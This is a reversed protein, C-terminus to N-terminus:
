SAWPMAAPPAFRSSVNVPQGSQASATIACMVEVVHAAQEASARHPRGEQIAEAMEAVGAAWQIPGAPQRVLPVAEYEADFAAHEIRGEFQFWNSLWLSGADGHLEVGRQRSLSSAYFDSTLRVLPGDVLELMAVTFDPRGIGFAVGDRTVREALLRTAWGSVRAVPGFLATLLTLPYVGVDFLPGVDYFPQPATHWTEIRGWNVDAFALRVTGLEGHRIWRAATQALEGQWVIPAAGLRRDVREALAVLERAHDTTLALPKESFVHRRALLSRRSVEAHAGHVTLNVVIEIAPDHLLADLDDYPRGGHEATLREARQPDLDTAGVLSLAPHNVLDAAYRGAIDGCGVIGVGYSM